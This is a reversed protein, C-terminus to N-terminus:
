RFAVVRWRTSVNDYILTVFAPNNTSNILAGTGTYVRNTDGSDLGSDHLITFSLGPNDFQCVAIKGDMKNAASFGVNTYAGSPGSFRVYAANVAVASNYGNALATNATPTYVQIANITNTGKVLVNTAMPSSLLGPIIVTHTSSGLVVQDNTTSAAGHGIVISNHHRNGVSTSNGLAVANSAAGINSSQGIAISNTGASGDASAGIAIGFIGASSFWGMAVANTAATSSIGVVVSNGGSVSSGSGFQQSSPYTGSSSFSNGYNVGNSIVPNINTMASTFGNTAYFGSQVRVAGGVTLPSSITQGPHAGKTVYNSIASSNTSFANTSYIDLGYVLSSGQNTRNTEGVMNEMPWLATYTTPGAQTTLTITAWNGTATGTYVLGLPGTFKVKNTATMVHTIGSGVPYSAYDNFLNTASGNVSVLNTLITTSSNANTWMRVAGNLAFTAGSVPPNTVTVEVSIRSSTAAQVGCAMMLFLFIIRHTM